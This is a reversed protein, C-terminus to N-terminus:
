ATEEDPDTTQGPAPVPWAGAGALTTARLLRHVVVTLESDRELDRARVRGDAVSLAIVDRVVPVGQPGIMELRVPTGAAAAERLLGLAEVPDNTGPM